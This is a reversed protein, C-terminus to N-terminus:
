LRLPADPKPRWSWPQMDILITLVRRTSGDANLVAAHNLACWVETGDSRYLAREECQIQGAAIREWHKDTFEADVALGTLDAYTTKDQAGLAYLLLNRTRLNADIVQGRANFWLLPHSAELAAMVGRRDLRDAARRAGTRISANRTHMM